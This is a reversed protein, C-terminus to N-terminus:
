AAAVLLSIILMVAVVFVAGAVFIPEIAPPQNNSDFDHATRVTASRQDHSAVTAAPAGPAM